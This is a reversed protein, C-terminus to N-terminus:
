NGPLVSLSIFFKHFEEMLFFSLCLPMSGLVWLGIESTSLSSLPAEADLLFLSLDESSASSGVRSLDTSVCLGFSGTTSFLQLSNVVIGGDVLSNKRSLNTEEWSLEGLQLGQSKGPYKEKRETFGFM